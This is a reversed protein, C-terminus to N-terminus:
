PTSIQALRNLVFASLTHSTLYVHVTYPTHPRHRLTYPTPHTPGTGKGYNAFVESLPPPRQYEYQQNVAHHQQQPHPPHLRPPPPPPPENKWPAQMGAVDRLSPLAAVEARLAEV